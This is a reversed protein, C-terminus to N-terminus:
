PLFPLRKRKKVERGYARVWADEEANLPGADLAALNEDLQARDAPGTLAVHVHPSSLCFRYCLGSTLPPVSRGGLDRGPWAPMDIGGIPKLLQRWSTATYSVITPTRVGCHPFIDQEAGPHKANYRIMFTDIVSDRALEGAKVRDHISTGISRIKGEEKLKLVADRVGDSYFSTRGMWSLKYCDLYDTGLKRLANEVGSRVMGGYWAIGLMSVVHDERSRALIERLAPTVKRFSSTWVWYRIGREAAYHIDPTELGYNGALGLRLVRKGLSPLTVYRFEAAGLENMVM